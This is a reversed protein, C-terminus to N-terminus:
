DGLREIEVKEGLKAWILSVHDESGANIATQILKKGIQTIDLDLTLHNAVLENDPFVGWLGDSCLLLQDDPQLAYTFMDIKVDPQNGIGRMVVHIKDNNFREAETIIGHQVLHEVFSHDVTLQKLVGDRVLYTRSDGVNAVIAVSGVVVACTLTSAMVIDHDQAYQYVATNAEAIAAELQTSLQAVCDDGVCTDLLDQMAGYVSEITLQSAVEGADYGGMGDALAFFNAARHLKYFISDQNEYPSLGRESMAIIQQKM